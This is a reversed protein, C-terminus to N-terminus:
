PQLVRAEKDAGAIVIHFVMIVISYDWNRYGVLQLDFCNTDGACSLSLACRRTSGCLKKTLTSQVYGITCAFFHDAVFLRSAPGDM